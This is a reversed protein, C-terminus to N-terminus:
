GGMKSPDFPKGDMTMTEKVWEMSSMKWEGSEKRFGDKSVGSFVMTHAKHDPGESISVMRHRTECTGTDGHVSLNLIKSDASKMKQMMAFSQKMGAIMDDYTETKGNEVYKFDSTTVERTIKEFAGIDKKMFAAHIKKNASEIDKRLNGASALCVVGLAVAFVTLAKNM